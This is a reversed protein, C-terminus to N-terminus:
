DQEGPNPNELSQPQELAALLNRLLSAPAPTHTEHNADHVQVGDVTIKCYGLGRSKRGGLQRVANLAAVLWALDQPYVVDDLSFTRGRGAVTGEHC